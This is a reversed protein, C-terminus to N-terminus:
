SREWPKERSTLLNSAVHMSIILDCFNLLKGGYRVTRTTCNGTYKLEIEKDYLKDGSLQRDHLWTWHCLDQAAHLVWSVLYWCLVVQINSQFLFFFEFNNNQGDRRVRMKVSPRREFVLLLRLTLWFPICYKNVLM